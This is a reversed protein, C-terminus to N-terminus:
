VIDVNSIRGLASCIIILKVDRKRVSEIVVVGVFDIPSGIRDSPLHISLHAARLLSRVGPISGRVLPVERLCGSSHLKGEPGRTEGGVTLSGNVPGAAQDIPVGGIDLVVSVVVCGEL